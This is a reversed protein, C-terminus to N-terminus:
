AAPILATPSETSSDGCYPRMTCITEIETILGDHVRFRTAGIRTQTSAASLNEFRYYAVASEGEIYLQLLEPVIRTVTMTPAGLQARIEGATTGRARLNELRRADPALPVNSGDHRAFGDLYREVADRVVQRDAPAPETTDGLDHRLLFVDDTDTTHEVRSEATWDGYLYSNSDGIMNITEFHDMLGGTVHAITFHYSGTGYPGNELHIFGAVWDGDVVAWQKQNHSEAYLILGKDAACMDASSTGTVRGDEIRTIDDTIHLQAGDKRSHFEWYSGAAEIKGVRTDDTPPAPCDGTVRYTATSAAGEVLHDARAIPALGFVLLGALAVIARRPLARTRSAM